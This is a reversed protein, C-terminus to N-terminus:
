AEKSAKRLQFVKKCAPCRQYNTADKVRLAKGCHPCSVNYSVQIEEEQTEDDAFIDEEEEDDAEPEDLAIGLDGLLNALEEDEEYKARMPREVDMKSKSILENVEEEFTDDAAEVQDKIPEAKVEPSSITLAQDGVTMGAALVAVEGRKIVRRIMERWSTINKRGM